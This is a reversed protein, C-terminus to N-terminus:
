LSLEGMLLIVHSVVAATPSSRPVAPAAWARWLSGTSPVLEYRVPDMGPPVAVFWCSPNTRTASSSRQHFPPPLFPEDLEFELLEDFEFELLEDFELEFLEDFEFEFLEDFEFEFLEDFELEFLEDFELEFLEDFELEFLEDLELEFLLSLSSQDSRECSPAPVAM